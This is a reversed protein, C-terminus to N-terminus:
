MAMGCPAWHMDCPQRARWAQGTPCPNAYRCSWARKWMLAKRAAPWRLPVHHIRLDLLLELRALDDDDVAAGAGVDLAAASGHAPFGPARIGIEGMGVDHPFNMFVIDARSRFQDRGVGEGGAGQEEIGQAAVGVQDADILGGDREGLGRSCVTRDGDRARDGRHPGHDLAAVPGGLLAFPRFALGAGQELALHVIEGPAMHVQQHHFHHAVHVVGDPGGLGRKRRSKGDPDANRDLAALVPQEGAEPALVLLQVVHRPDRAPSFGWTMLM